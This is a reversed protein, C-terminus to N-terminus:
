DEDEDANVRKVLIEMGELILWILILPTTGGLLCALGFIAAGQGYFKYILTEGVIFLILLFGALLQINTQRAYKRLDKSM